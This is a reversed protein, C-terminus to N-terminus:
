GKRLVCNISDKVPQLLDLGVAQNPGAGFNPKLFGNGKKWKSCRMETYGVVLRPMLETEAVRGWGM